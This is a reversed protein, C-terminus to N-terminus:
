GLNIMIYHNKILLLNLNLFVHNPQIKKVYLYIIFKPLTGNDLNVVKILGFSYERVAISIYQVDQVLTHKYLSWNSPVNICIDFKNICHMCTCFTYLWLSFMLNIKRKKLCVQSPYWFWARVGWQSIHKCWGTSPRGWSKHQYAALKELVRNRWLIKIGKKSMSDKWM